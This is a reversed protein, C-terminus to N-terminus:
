DASSEQVGQHQRDPDHSRWVLIQRPTGDPGPEVSRASPEFGMALYLQRAAGADPHPHDRGFTTVEIDSSGSELAYRVLARGIGRRQAKRRVALWTIRDNHFTIAGVLESGSRVCSASGRAINKELWKRFAQDRAMDAGFLDSVENALDLWSAIDNQTAPEVIM